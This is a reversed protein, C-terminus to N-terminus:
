DANIRSEGMAAFTMAEEIDVHDETSENRKATLTVVIVLVIALENIEFSQEIIFGSM